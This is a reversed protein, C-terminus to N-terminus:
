QGYCLHLNYHYFQFGSARFEPVRTLSSIMQAHVITKQNLRISRLKSTRTSANKTWRVGDGGAWVAWNLVQYLVTSGKFGNIIQGIHPPQFDILMGDSSGNSCLGVSNCAVVNVYYVRGSELMIGTLTVRTALGVSERAYADDLGAVTGLGIRYETVASEGETFAGEWHAQYQFQQNSYELDYSKLGDKIRRPAASPPSPDNLIGDSTATRRMSLKNVAKVTLHYWRKPEIVGKPFTLAVFLSGDPYRTLTTIDTVNTYPMIDTGYPNRGVAVEQFAIGSEDDECLWKAQVVSLDRM